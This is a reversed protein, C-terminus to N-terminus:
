LVDLVIILFLFLKLKTFPFFNWVGSHWGFNKKNQKWAVVIRIINPSKVFNHSIEVNSHIKWGSGQYHKLGILPDDM